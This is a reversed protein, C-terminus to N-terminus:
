IKEETGETEDEKTGGNLRGDCVIERGCGVCVIKKMGEEHAQM